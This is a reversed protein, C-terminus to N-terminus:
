FNSQDQKRSHVFLTRDLKSADMVRDNASAIEKSKAEDSAALEIPKTTPKSPLHKSEVDLKEAYKSSQKSPTKSRSRSYPSHRASSARPNSQNSFNSANTKNGSLRSLLSASTTTLGKSRSRSRQGQYQDRKNDFHKTNYSSQYTKSHFGEAQQHYQGGYPVYKSTKKAPSRSRSRNRSQQQQQQQDHYKPKSYATKFAGPSNSRSRSYTSRSRSSRKRPKEKVLPSRNRGRSPSSTRSRSRSTSYPSRSRTYSRSRSRSRSRTYRRKALRQHSDYKTYSKYSSQYSTQDRKSM